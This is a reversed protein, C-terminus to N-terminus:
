LRWDVPLSQDALRSFLGTDAYDILPIQPDDPLLGLAQMVMDIETLQKSEADTRSNIGYNNTDVASAQVKKCPEFFENYYDSTNRQVLRDQRRKHGAGDAVKQESVQALALLTSVKVVRYQNYHQGRRWLSSSPRRNGSKQDIRMQSDQQYRGQTRAIVDSLKGLAYKDTESHKLQQQHEFKKHDTKVMSEFTNRSLPTRLLPLLDRATSSSLLILNASEADRLYPKLEKRIVCFVEAKTLLKTNEYDSLILIFNLTEERIWTNPHLLFPLLRDL